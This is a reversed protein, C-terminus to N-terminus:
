RPEPKASAVKANEHEEEEKKFEAFSRERYVEGDVKWLHPGVKEVGEGSFREGDSLIVELHRSLRDSYDVFGTVYVEEDDDSHKSRSGLFREAGEHLTRIVSGGSKKSPEPQPVAQAESGKPVIAHAIGSGMLKPVVIVLLSLGIALPFVLRIDLGKARSGKDAKTGIFGTGAATDYCDEIGDHGLKFKGKKSVEVNPGPDTEFSEWVFEPVAKFMGLQKLYGNKLRIFEHAVDRFGKAIRNPLRGNTSAYVNDGYKRQQDLYAACEIGFPKGAAGGQAWAQASYGNAGAEDIIYAVGDPGTTEEWSHVHVITEGFDEAIRKRVQPGRIKWFGARTEAETLIRLREVLRLNENPYKRELYANFEPVRIALNTCINRKSERLERVIIHMQFLSKGSGGRGFLISIM